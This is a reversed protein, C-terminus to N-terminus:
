LRQAQRLWDELCKGIAAVEAKAITRDFPDLYGRDELEDLWERQIPITRMVLGLRRRARMRQNRAARAARKKAHRTELDNQLEAHRTEAIALDNESEAPRTETM